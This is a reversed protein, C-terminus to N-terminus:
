RKMCRCSFSGLSGRCGWSTRHLFVVEHLGLVCHGAWPVAPQSLEPCSGQTGVCLSSLGGPSGWPHEPEREAGLGSLGGDWAAGALGM